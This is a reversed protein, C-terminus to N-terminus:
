LLNAPRYETGVHGSARLSRLCRPTSVRTERSPPASMGSPPTSTGTQRSFSRCMQCVPIDAGGSVTNGTKGTALSIGASRSM